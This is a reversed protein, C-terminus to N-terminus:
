SPMRRQLERNLPALSANFLQWSDSTAATLVTSFLDSDFSTTDPKNGVICQDIEVNYRASKLNESERRLLYKFITWYM